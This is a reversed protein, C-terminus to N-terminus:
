RETRDPLVPHSKICRHTPPKLTCYYELGLEIYEYRLPNCLVRQQKFWSPGITQSGFKLNYISQTSGPTFGFVYLNGDPGIQSSEVFNSADVHLHNMHATTNWDWSASTMNYRVAFYGKQSSGSPGITQSGFKLNYISQTSGPTFGFVYLNGDPGIQSSEVFNSADVHLHNMHATTNWDWSASTMNYRVAFYGKQSSGSPGITQSGFTLNYISQTGTPTFGFVYLNGDPGIQSSEVYNSADVHLHNMHATITNEWPNLSVQGARPFNIISSQINSDELEADPTTPMFQHQNEALHLGIPGFMLLVLLVAVTRSFWTRMYRELCQLIDFEHFM